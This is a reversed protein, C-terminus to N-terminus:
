PNEVARDRWGQISSRNLSHSKRIRVQLGPRNRITPRATRIQGPRELKDYALGM